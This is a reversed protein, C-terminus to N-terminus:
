AALAASEIARCELADVGNLSMDGIASDAEFAVCCVIGGVKKCFGPLYEGYLADDCGAPAELRFLASGAITEPGGVDRLWPLRRM